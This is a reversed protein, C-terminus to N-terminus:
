ISEKTSIFNKLGIVLNDVENLDTTIHVCARLWKPDELVRIWVNEQGLHKVVDEPSNNGNITFSIIGSPPPSNLVLEINKIQNLEKWLVASLSKIKNLRETESGENKLMNLSSRLGALLPICSTAIEFRRGDSHFPTENNVYIGEEAKLSKWGILTPIALYDEFLSKYIEVIKLTEEMAEEKTSHATHGEQWLFESTRLFLRTRMEWRVVNAWQNIMVPLDRYSTIWKKFMSWIITESTPRVIIEEELKSDPDVSLGDNEAILKSHTVVACEKAFGEVHKAEKEFFSKPIFLPFYANEHGSDEIMTNLAKKVNSWLSFGYPKVVMTGKVPGYDALDANLITDTYWKSFDESQKTIKAM